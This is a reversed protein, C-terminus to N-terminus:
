RQEDNSEKTKNYNNLDALDRAEAEDNAKQLEATAQQLLLIIDNLSNAMYLLELFYNFLLIDSYLRKTYVKKAM